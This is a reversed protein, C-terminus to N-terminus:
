GQRTLKVPGCAQFNDLWHTQDSFRWLCHNLDAQHVVDFSAEGNIYHNNGDGRQCFGPEGFVVSIEASIENRTECMRGSGFYAPRLVNHCVKKALWWHLLSIIHSSNVFKILKTERSGLEELKWKSTIKRPLVCKLVMEASSYSEKLRPAKM